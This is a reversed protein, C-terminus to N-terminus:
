VRKRVGEAASPKGCARGSKRRREPVFNEGLLLVFMGAAFWLYYTKFNARSLDKFSTKDIQSLQNNLSTLAQESSELKTYVGNTSSAIDRLIEENLRSIVPNGSDDKKIEGTSPEIITTGEASGIGVTNIMVGQEALDKATNAADADHDEGDSILIVTKYKNDTASFVAASRKLADSIVTGQQPVSAPSAASVFLSAARHDTTLPMQLYAQGAFLVLAFRDNPMSSILRSIFQKARDLRSPAIDTALMSKSVDMAIVVDIGKKNTSEEKGPKRPNMVAVVGCGFAVMLLVLKLASLRSSYQATLIDVLKEDGMRKRVQKKWYLFAFYFLVLIIICSFLPLFAKYQFQFGM